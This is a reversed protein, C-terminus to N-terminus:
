QTKKSNQFNGLKREAKVLCWKIFLDGGLGTKEGEGRGGVKVQARSHLQVFATLQYAESVFVVLM